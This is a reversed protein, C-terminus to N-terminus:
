TPDVQHPLYWVPAPNMGDWRVLVSAVSGRRNRQIDIVIGETNTMSQSRVRTGVSLGAAAWDINAIARTMAAENIENGAFDKM